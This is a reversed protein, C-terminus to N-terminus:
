DDARPPEGTIEQWWALTAVFIWAFFWAIALAVLISPQEDVTRSQSLMYGALGVAVLVAVLFSALM